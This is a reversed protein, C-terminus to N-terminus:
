MATLWHCALPKFVLTPLHPPFPPFHSWQTPTDTTECPSPVACPLPCHPECCLSHALLPWCL